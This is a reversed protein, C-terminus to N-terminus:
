SPEGTVNLSVCDMTFSNATCCYNGSDSYQINNLTLNNTSISSNTTLETNHEWTICTTCNDEYSDTSADCVFSINGGVLATISEASKIKVYNGIFIFIMTAVISTAACLAIMCCKCQECNITPFPTAIPSESPTYYATGIKVAIMLVLMTNQLLMKFPAHM